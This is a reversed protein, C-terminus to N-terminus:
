TTHLTVGDRCVGNIDTVFAIEDTIITPAIMAPNAPLESLMKLEDLIKPNKAIVKAAILIKPPKKTV